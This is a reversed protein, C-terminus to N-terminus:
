KATANNNNNNNSKNSSNRSNSHCDPHVSLQRVWFAFSFMTLCLPPCLQLSPSLLRLKVEAERTFNRGLLWLCIGPASLFASSCSCLQHCLRSGRAPQSTSTSRHHHKVEQEDEREYPIEEKGRGLPRASINEPCFRCRTEGMLQVVLGVHLTLLGSHGVSARGATEM